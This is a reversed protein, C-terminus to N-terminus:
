GLPMGIIPLPLQYQESAVMAVKSADDENPVSKNRIKTKKQRAEKKKEHTELHRRLQDARIFEKDCGPETCKMKNGPSHIKRHKSLNSSEGFAKNCVDCRLPKEGTHTRKHMTLASKQKFAKDCGPLDCLYPKAGSHCREHQELAQRASFGDGCTKCQFPKVDVDKEAPNQKGPKPPISARLTDPSGNAVDPCLPPPELMSTAPQTVGCVKELSGSQGFIPCGFQILSPDQPQDQPGPDRLHGLTLAVSHETNTHNCQQAHPFFQTTSLYDFDCWQQHHDWMTGLTATQETDFCNPDNCPSGSDACDEDDCAPTCHDSDLCSIQSCKDETTCDQNAGTCQPLTCSSPCCIGQCGTGSSEAGYGHFFKFGDDSEQKHDHSTWDMIQELDLQGNVPYIRGVKPTYHRCLPAAGRYNLSSNSDEPCRIACGDDHPHQIGGSFDPGSFPGLDLLYDDAAFMNDNATTNPEDFPSKLDASMSDLGYYHDIVDIPDNM